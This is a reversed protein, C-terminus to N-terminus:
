IINLDASCWTRCLIQSARFQHWVFWGSQVTKTILLSPVAYAPVVGSGPGLGVILYVHRQIPVCGLLVLYIRYVANHTPTDLKHMGITEQCFFFFSGSWMRRPLTEVVFASECLLMLVYAAQPVPSIWASLKLLRWMLVGFCITVKTTDTRGHRRNKCRQRKGGGSGGDTGMQRDGGGDVGM